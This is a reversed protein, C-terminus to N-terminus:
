IGLIFVQGGPGRLPHRGSPADDSVLLINGSILGLDPREELSGVFLDPIFASRVGVPGESSNLEYARGRRAAFRPQQCVTSAAADTSVVFCIFEDDIGIFFRADTGPHTLRVLRDYDPHTGAEPDLYIEETSAVNTANDLVAFLEAPAPDDVQEYVLHGSPTSFVLNTDVVEPGTMVAEIMVSEIHHLDISPDDSICGKTTSVFEGGFEGGFDNCVTNGGVSGEEIELFIPETVEVPRDDVELSSLLWLGDAEGADTSDSGCGLLVM